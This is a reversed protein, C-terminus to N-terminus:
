TKNQFGFGHPKTVRKRKQKNNKISFLQALTITKDVLASIDIGLYNAVANAQEKTFADFKVTDFCRGDRLLAEDVVDLSNLNTTFIVKKSKNSTLGDAINLLRKMSPNGQERKVLFEDADEIILFKDTGKLFSSFMSDLDRIADQYTIIASESTKYLMYKLLNSKGTGAAGYLLLISEEGAIYSDIYEDLSLDGLWPYFSNDMLTPCDLALKDIILDGGNGVGTVWSITPVKPPEEFNDIILKITPQDYSFFTSLFYGKVDNDYSVRLYTHEEVFGEFSQHADLASFNYTTTVISKLFEAYKETIPKYETHAVSTLKNQIVTQHYNLMFAERFSSSYIAPKSVQTPITSENMIKEPYKKFLPTYLYYAELNLSGYNLCLKLNKYVNPTVETDFSFIPLYQQDVSTESSSCDFFNEMKNLIQHIYCRNYYYDELDEPLCFNFTFDM